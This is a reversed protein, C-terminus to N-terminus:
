CGSGVLARLVGWLVVFVIAGAITLAIGISGAQQMRPMQVWKSVPIMLACALFTGVLGALVAYKGWGMLMDVYPEVGPPAEPCVGEGPLKKKGGGKPDLLAFAVWYTRDMAVYAQSMLNSMM